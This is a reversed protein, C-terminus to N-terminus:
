ADCASTDVPRAEAIHQSVEDLLEGRRDAPLDRLDAELDTLYRDVLADVKTTM